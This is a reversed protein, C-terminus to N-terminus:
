RGGSLAANIESVLANVRNAQVISFIGTIDDSRYGVLDPPVANSVIFFPNRSNNRRYNRANAQAKKWTDSRELGPRALTSVSNDPNQLRRPSGKTEIAITPTVEIDHTKTNGPTPMAPLEFRVSLLHRGASEFVNGVVSGRSQFTAVEFVKTSECVPCRRPKNGFEATAKSRGICEFCTWAPYCGADDIAAQFCADFYHHLRDNTLAGGGIFQGYCDAAIADYQTAM